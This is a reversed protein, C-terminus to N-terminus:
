QSAPQARRIARVVAFASAAFMWRRDNATDNDDLPHADAPRHRDVFARVRERVEPHNLIDPGKMTSLEHLLLLDEYTEKPLFGAILAFLAKTEFSASALVAAFDNPDAGKKLADFTTIQGQIVRKVLEEDFEREVLTFLEFVVPEDDDGFVPLVWHGGYDRSSQVTIMPESRGYLLWEPTTGFANAYKDAHKAFGATGNEHHRYAPIKWGFYRAADAATKFAPEPSSKFHVSLRAARLREHPEAASLDRRRPESEKSM